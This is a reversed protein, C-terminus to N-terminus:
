WWILEFHSRTTMLHVRNALEAPALWDIGSIQWLLAHEQLQQRLHLDITSLGAPDLHALLLFIPGASQDLVATVKQRIQTVDAGADCVILASM